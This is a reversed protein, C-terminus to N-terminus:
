SAELPALIVVYRDVRTWLSITSKSSFSDFAAATWRSRSSTFDAMLARASSPDGSAGEAAARAFSIGRNCAAM